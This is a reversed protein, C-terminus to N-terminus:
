FIGCGCVASLGLAGHPLAVYYKCYGSMWFVIFGVITRNGIPYQSKIEWLEIRSTSPWYCSILFSFYEANVRLAGLFFHM